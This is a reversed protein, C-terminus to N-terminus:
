VMAVEAGACVASYGLRGNVSSRTINVIQLFCASM